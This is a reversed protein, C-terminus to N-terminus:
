INKNLIELYRKREFDDCTFGFNSFAEELLKKENKLDCIEKKCIKEIELFWGLKDVNNLEFVYDGKKFEYTKKRKEAFIEYGLNRMFSFFSKKSDVKFEIEENSEIGNDMKHNKYTVIYKRNSERVRFESKEQNHKKFYWDSKEKKTVFEYNEKLIKLIDEYSVGKKDLWVKAEIELM